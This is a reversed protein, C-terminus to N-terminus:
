EVSEQLLPGGIPTRRDRQAVLWITFCVACLLGIYIALEKWPQEPQVLARHWWIWGSWQILWAISLWALVPWKWRSQFGSITALLLLVALWTTTIVVAQWGLFLGITLLGLSLHPGDNQRTREHNGFTSWCGNLLGGVILGLSVGILGSDLPRMWGPSPMGVEFGHNWPVPMLFPWLWPALGGVVLAFLITKVPIRSRDYAMLTWALLVSILVGYFLLLGSREQFPQHLLFLIQTGGVAKEEQGLHCGGGIMEVWFLLVFVSGFLLEVLPYRRSIPLRCARCRGELKLWGLIPVNDLLRIPTTCFPCASGKAIVSVGRPMRWVVVNIFSGVMAGLAFFWILVLSQIIYLHIERVWMAWEYAAPTEQNAFYTELTFGAMSLALLFVLGGVMARAWTAGRNWSAQRRRIKKEPTMAM